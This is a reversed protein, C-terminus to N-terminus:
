KSLNELQVVVADLEAAKTRASNSLIATTTDGTHNAFRDVVLADYEITSSIEGAAQCAARACQLYRQVCNLDVASQSILRDLTSVLKSLQNFPHLRLRQILGAYAEALNAQLTALGATASPLNLMPCSTRLQEYSAVDIRSIPVLSDINPILSRPDAAREILEALRRMGNVKNNIMQMRAIMASIASDIIACGDVTPM